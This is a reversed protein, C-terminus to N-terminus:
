PTPWSAWWLALLALRLTDFQVHCALNSRGKTDNRGVAVRICPDSAVPVITVVFITLVAIVMSIVALVAWHRKLGKRQLWEVTPNIGVAVFMSVVILILVGSIADIRTALWYAVLAGM